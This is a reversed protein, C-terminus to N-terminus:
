FRFYIFPNYSGGSLRIICWLLLVFAAAYLIMQILNEKSTLRRKKEADARLRLVLPRIPGCCIVAVALMAIFFPTMQQCAFSMSAASCDFGTFMKGIFLFAQNLTDARFIVFGVIVVLMTYIHLVVRPLKKLAPVFEEFFSFLGHFLGWVVFTWNAGHWLGTLFFVIIKNIGARTKGKRNGGLPIYVYEKFWSSLSIHWRRWFEKITLSGYPHEFNEKFHFGFMRGLGIAMDSYGSFDFYIQMAYAVAGIWAVVVNVTDFGQSFVNDAVAAMTNAILIKKALGCIFRRLGPAAERLEVRRSDIELAIDRYKVIPGAILQPFFSIYLLVKFFNKQIGVQERYVDIVYSLAQFTFFSIGIPLTIQPVNINTHLVSNVTTVLFGTYKFICLIGINIVVAIVLVAKRNAKGMLLACLYNLFASAIMLLVYVPEGFAYFILSAIILLANKVKISPMVSHLCFIVPLFICLFVLSSFVM